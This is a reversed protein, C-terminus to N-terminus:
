GLTKAYEGALIATDYDHEGCCNTTNPNDHYEAGGVFVPHKVFKIDSHINASNGNRCYMACNGLKSGIMRAVSADRETFYFVAHEMKIEDGNNNQEIYQVGLFELVGKSIAVSAIDMKSLILDEESDIFGYEVLVADTKTGDFKKLVYIKNGSVKVGRDVMGLASVMQNQICTALAEDSGGFKYCWTEIGKAQQNFSNNHCSIFVDPSYTKAIAVRNQLDLNVSFDGDCFDRDETRTYNVILGHQQLIKGIKLSLSLNNNKEYTNNGIAGPDNGGHGSDIVCQTMKLKV